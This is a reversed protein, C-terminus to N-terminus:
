VSLAIMLLVDSAKGDADLIAFEETSISCGKRWVDLDYRARKFQTNFSQQLTISRGFSFISFSLYHSSLLSYFLCMSM